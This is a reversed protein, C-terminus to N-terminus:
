SQSSKAVSPFLGLEWLEEDKLFSQYHLKSLGMHCYQGRKTKPCIILLGEVVFGIHNILSPSLQFDILAPDFHSYDSVNIDSGFHFDCNPVAGPSPQTAITTIHDRIQDPSISTVVKRIRSAIDGISSTLLLEVPIPDTAVSYTLNAFSTPPLKLIPRLNVPQRLSTLQTPPLRRARTIARWISACILDNSSVWNEGLEYNAKNKHNKLKEHDVAIRVLRVIDQFPKPVSPVKAYAKVLQSPPAIHSPKLLLRSDVMQGFGKSWLKMFEYVSCGDAVVHSISVMLLVSGCNFYTAKAAFLPGGGDLMRIIAKRFLYDTPMLEYNFDVKALTQFDHNVRQSSFWAGSGPIKVSTGMLDGSLIPVRDLARSLAWVLRGENMFGTVRETNEFAYLTPIYMVPQIKDLIGLEMVGSSVMEHPQVYVVREEEGEQCGKTLGIMIHGESPGIGLESDMQDGYG